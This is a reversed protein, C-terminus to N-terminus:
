PAGHHGNAVSARGVDVFEDPDDVSGVADLVEEDVAIARIGSVDACPHGSRTSGEQNDIAARGARDRGRYMGGHLRQVPVEPQEGDIGRSLSPPV